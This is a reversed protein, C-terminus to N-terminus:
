TSQGGLLGLGLGGITLGKVNFGSEGGQGEKSISVGTRILLKGLNGNAAGGVVVVQLMIDYVITDVAEFGIALLPFGEDYLCSDLQGM